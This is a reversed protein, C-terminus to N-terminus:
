EEELVNFGSKNIYIKKSRTKGRVNFRGESKMKIPQSCICFDVDDSHIELGKIDINSLYDVTADKPLDHYVGFLTVKKVGEEPIVKLGRIKVNPWSKATLEQRKNIGSNLGGMYIIFSAVKTAYFKSDNIEINFPVYSNYDSRLLIPIFNRFECRNFKVTGYVSSIDNSLDHFICHEATIDRGYCHCDYRNLNCDKLYSTNINNCCFVGWKGDGNVNYCKVNWVNSLSIGYGYKDKQSYSGDIKVNRLTVNTCCNIAIIGDGYKADDNPTYTVVNFFFLNNINLFNVLRTQYKCGKARKFILNGFLKQKEDTDVYASTPKSYPNNYPMISQNQAKGDILLRVDERIAGYNFGRRNLVWPNEDKIFLLKVGSALEKCKSFDNDDIYSQSINIAKSPNNFSFLCFDKQQNWVTITVGRFNTAPGLPITKADKPIEININGIGTYDVETNLRIAAEHTRYLVRFREEGNKANHLGYDLPSVSALANLSLLVFLFIIVIKNM